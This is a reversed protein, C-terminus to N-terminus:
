EAIEYAKIEGGEVYLIKPHSPMGTKKIKDSDNEEVLRWIEWQDGDGDICFTVSKRVFDEIIFQISDLPEAKTVPICFNKKSYVYNEGNSM